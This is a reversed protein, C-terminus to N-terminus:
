LHDHVDEQVVLHDGIKIDTVVMVHVMVSVVVVEEVAEAEEVVRPDIM